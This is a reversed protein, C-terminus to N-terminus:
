MLEGVHDVAAFAATDKPPLGSDPCRVARLWAIGFRQASDLVPLSDDVFLTRSPDFPETARLRPWFAPDEKPAAFAHTSYSAHFHRGLGTHESKVALTQPHANTVLVIRKGSRGLRGLFEEAGPLYRVEERLTRKIGLIDLELERSWHDICYWQITGAAERFKPELLRRAAEIGIGRALAYHQPVIDHWFWNDFRLDLLTGDMDLLVTDIASWDLAANPQM